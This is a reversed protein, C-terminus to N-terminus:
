VVDPDSAKELEVLPDGAVGHQEESQVVATEEKEGISDGVIVTQIDPQLIGIDSTAKNDSALALITQSAASELVSATSVAPIDSVSALLADSVPISLTSVSLSTSPAESSLPVTHTMSVPISFPVPIASGDLSIVSTGTSNTAVLPQIQTGAPVETHIVTIGGLESHRVLAIAGHSTWDSPLTLPQTSVVISDTHSKSIDSGSCTASSSISPATTATRPSKSAKNKKEGPGAKETKEKAPSRPKKEEVNGELVM